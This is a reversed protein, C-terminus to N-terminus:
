NYRKGFNFNIYLTLFFYNPDNLAMLPVPRPFIDLMAGVELSKLKNRYSAYDFDLGVKGHLGPFFDLENFGKTFPARGFINDVFHEDPDYREETINYEYIVPSANLIYLYIPKGIALSVGGMYFFRLEVGGWYPKRNLQHHVGYTGRFVFVSNLKGYIYSKSNTFYPNITRIQRLSQMEVMEIVIMRRKFATKNYGQSYKIGWGQTHFIVGFSREKMLIINKSTDIVPETQAMLQVMFFSLFALIIIRM